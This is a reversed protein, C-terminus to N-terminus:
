HALQLEPFRSLLSGSIEISSPTIKLKIPGLSKEVFTPRAPCGALVPGPRQRGRFGAAGPELRGARGGGEPPAAGAGAGQLEARLPAPDEWQGPAEAAGIVLAIFNSSMTM